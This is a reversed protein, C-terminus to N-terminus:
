KVCGYVDITQKLAASFETDVVKYAGGVDACIDEDSPDIHVLIILTLMGVVFVFIAIIAGKIFSSGEQEM